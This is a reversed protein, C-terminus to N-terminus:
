QREVNFTEINNEDMLDYFRESVANFEIEDEIPELTYEDDGENEYRYLYMETEEDDEDADVPVLAAYEVQYGPVGDFVAVLACDESTGDDYELTIITAEFDEDSIHNKKLEM